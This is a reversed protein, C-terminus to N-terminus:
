ALKKKLYVEVVGYVYMGDVVFFMIISALLSIYWVVAIIIYYWLHSSLVTGYVGTVMLPIFCASLLIIAVVTSLYISESYPHESMAREFSVKEGWIVEYVSFVVWEVVMCGLFLLMLVLFEGIYGNVIQPYYTSEIGLILIIIFLPFVLASKVISRKVIWRFGYLMLVPFMFFATIEIAYGLGGLEEKDTM